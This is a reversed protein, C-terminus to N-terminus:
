HAHSLQPILSLLCPNRFPLDQKMLRMEKLAAFSLQGLHLLSLRASMLPPYPHAPLPAYPCWSCQLPPMPVSHGVNPPHCSSVATCLIPVHLSCPSALGLTCELACQPFIHSLGSVSPPQAFVRLFGICPSPVLPGRLMGFPTTHPCPTMPCEGAQVLLLPCPVHPSVMRCPLAGSLTIRRALTVVAAMMERHTLPVRRLGPIRVTGDWWRAGSGRVKTIFGRGRAGFGRGNGCLGRGKASFGRGWTAERHVRAAAGHHCIAFHVAIDQARKDQGTGDQVASVAGDQKHWGVQAMRCEKM